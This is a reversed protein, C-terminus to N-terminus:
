SKNSIKMISELKERQKDVHRERSEQDGKERDRVNHCQRDAEGRRAEEGMEETRGEGEREEGRRGEGEREEGRRGDGGREEGRM